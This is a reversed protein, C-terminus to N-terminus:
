SMVAYKADFLKDWNFQDTSAEFEEGTNMFLTDMMQGVQDTGPPAQGAQYQGGQGQVDSPLPQMMAEYFGFNQVNNPEFVMPYNGMQQQPPMMNQDAQPNFGQITAPSLQLDDARTPIQSGSFLSSAISPQASMPPAMNFEGQFTQPTSQPGFHQMANPQDNQPIFQPQTPPPGGPAGHPGQPIFGPAQNAVVHYQPMDQPPQQPPQQFFPTKSQDFQGMEMAQLAPQFQRAEQAQPEISQQHPSATYNSATTYQSESYQSESPQNRPVQLQNLGSFLLNQQDPTKSPVRRDGPLYSDSSPTEAHDSGTLVSYPSDESADITERLKKTEYVGESQQSEKHSAKWEFYRKLLREMANNKCKYKRASVGNLYRTYTRLHQELYMYKSPHDMILTVLVHSLLTLMCSDMTAWHYSDSQTYRRFDFSDPPLLYQSRGEQELRELRLAVILVCERSMEEIIYGASYQRPVHLFPKNVFLLVYWYLFKLTHNQYALDDLAKLLAHLWHSAPELDSKWKLIKVNFMKSRNFKLLYNIRPDKNFQVPEYTAKLMPRTLEMFLVSNKLNLYDSDDEIQLRQVPVNNQTILNPRGLAMCVYSDIYMFGFLLRNKAASSDPGNVHHFGLDFGMRMALGALQWGSTVKGLSFDHAALLMYAQALPISLKVEIPYVRTMALYKYADAEEYTLLESNACIAYLLEESLHVSDRINGKQLDALIANKDLFYSNLSPYQHTFFNVVISKIFNYDTDVTELGSLSNEGPSDKLQEATTYEGFHYISGPGYYNDEDDLHAKETEASEANLQILAMEELVLQLPRLELQGMLPFSAKLSEVKAVLADRDASLLVLENLVNEYIEANTELSKIYVLSFRQSRKDTLSYECVINRKQCNSCPQEGDCKRKLKRCHVCSIKRNKKTSM